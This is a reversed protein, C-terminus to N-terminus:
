LQMGLRNAENYRQKSNCIVFLKYFLTLFSAADNIEPFYSRIAASTTEDFIALALSVSQKNNGPHIARYTLKHAKRLNGSLTEDKEYVKYLSNWSLFGAPVHIDDRFLNCSFEPFVFKRNLLNTRVNKIM